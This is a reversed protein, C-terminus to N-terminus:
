RRTLVQNAHNSNNSGLKTNSSKFSATPFLVFVATECKLTVNSWFMKVRDPTLQNQGGWCERFGVTVVERYLSWWPLDETERRGEHTKAHRRQFYILFCCTVTRVAKIVITGDYGTTTEPQFRLSHDGPSDRSQVLFKTTLVFSLSSFHCNSLQLESVSVREPFLHRHLHYCSTFLSMPAFLANLDSQKKNWPLFTEARVTIWVCLTQYGRTPIQTFAPHMCMWCNGQQLILSVCIVGAQVRCYFM